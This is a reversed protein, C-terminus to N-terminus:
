GHHAPLCLQIDPLASQRAIAQNQHFRSRASIRADGAAVEDELALSHAKPSGHHPHPPQPKLATRAPKCISQRRLSCFWSLSQAHFDVRSPNCGYASPTLAVSFYFPARALITRTPCLHSFARSHDDPVTGGARYIFSSAPSEESNSFDLVTNLPLDFHLPQSSTETVIPLAVLLLLYGPFLGLAYTPM